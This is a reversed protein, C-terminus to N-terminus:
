FAPGKKSPKKSTSGRIEQVEKAIRKEAWKEAWKDAANVDNMYCPVTISVDFRASEYDGLNVTLGYGRKVYAVPGVFPEVGVLEETHRESRVAGTKRNWFRNNVFVMTAQDEVEADAFIEVLERGERKRHREGRCSPCPLPHIVQWRPSVPVEDERGCDVCVVVLKKEPM